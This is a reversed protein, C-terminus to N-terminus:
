DKPAGAATVSGPPHPVTPPPATAPQPQPLVHFTLQAGRALAADTGTAPVADATLRPGPTGRFTLTDAYVAIGGVSVLQLSCEGVPYIKRAPVTAVVTLQASTGAPFTKGHAIVASTLRAPITRGNKLKGSDVAEDLAIPLATHPAIWIGSPHPEPIPSSQAAADVAPVKPAPQLPSSQAATDTPPPSTTKQAAAHAFVLLLGPLILVIRASVGHGIWSRFTM